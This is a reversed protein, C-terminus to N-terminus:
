AAGAFTEDYEEPSLFFLNGVDQARPGLEQRLSDHIWRRRESLDKGRFGPHVVFGSLRSNPTDRSIEAVGSSGLIVDLIKKLEEPTM